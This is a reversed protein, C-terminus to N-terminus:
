FHSCLQPVYDLKDSVHVFGHLEMAIHKTQLYLELRRTPALEHCSLCSERQVRSGLLVWCSFQFQAESDGIDLSKVSVHARLPHQEGHRGLLLIEAPHQCLKDIGLACM